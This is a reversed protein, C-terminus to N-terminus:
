TECPKEKEDAPPAKIGAIRRMANIGDRVDEPVDVGVHDCRAMDDVVASVADVLKCYRNAWGDRGNVCDRWKENTHRLQENEKRLRRITGVQTANIADLELWDQCLDTYSLSIPSYRWRKVKEVDCRM